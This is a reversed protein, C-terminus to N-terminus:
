NALQLALDLARKGLIAGPGFQNQHLRNDDSGREHSLWETIGNYCDWLSKGENGKGTYALDVCRDIINALRTSIKDEKDAEFVIKCFKIMDDKNIVKRKLSQFQQATMQFERDMLSITERIEGLTKVQRATHRVKLTKAIASSLNMQLTNDCVTRIPCFSVGTALSGDHSTYTMLYKNILDGGGADVTGGGTLIRALAWVVSGGKLVGATEFAVEKTDLFPQFWSFQEVNQLPQYREGVTGLVQNTDTRVTAYSGTAIRQGSIEIFQPVKDVDFCAGALCLSEEASFCREDDQPLVTGLKHWASEGYFVGSTFQAPM